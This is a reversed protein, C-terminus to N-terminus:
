SSVLLRSSSLVPLGARLGSLLPTSVPPLVSALLSLPPPEAVVVARGGEVGLDVTVVGDLKSAASGASRPLKAVRASAWRVTDAAISSASAARAALGLAAASSDAPGSPWGHAVVM